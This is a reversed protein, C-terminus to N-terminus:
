GGFVRHVAARFHAELAHVTADTDRRSLHDLIVLHEGIADAAKSPSAFDQNLVRALKLNEQLRFHTEAVLHNHAAAVIAGHFDWDLARLSREIQPAPSRDAAATLARQHAATTDAIWDDAVAEVFQPVAEREIMSRFQFNERIFTVDPTLVTVGARHRVTILGDAQLLTLTDRLPSLSMALIDCLEAQTHTAGPRLRGDLLAARFAAYGLNGRSGLTNLAM